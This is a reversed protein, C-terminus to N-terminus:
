GAPLIAQVTKGVVEGDANRKVDWSLRGQYHAVWWLGTPQGEPEGVQNAVKEFDPFEPYADDVEVLLEHTDPTVTLRLVVCGDTFPRAHRVANDVLKDAVRAARLRANPGAGANALLSTGWAFVPQEETQLPLLTVPTAQSEGDNASLDTTPVAAESTDVPQQNPPNV